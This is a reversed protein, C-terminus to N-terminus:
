SFTKVFLSTMKLWVVGTHGLMVVKGLKKLGANMIWLMVEGSCLHLNEEFCEADFENSIDRHKHTHFIGGKKWSGQNKEVDFHMLNGFWIGEGIM